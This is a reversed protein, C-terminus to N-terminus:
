IAQYSRAIRIPTKGIKEMLKCTTNFTEDSTRPGKAVEVGPVIHPPIFYHTIIIKNQRKVNSAFDGLTQFSTNSAIITCPPCLDDLKNFLERKDEPRETIAETIFDANAALQSLDTTTTIRKVTEDAKKQTILREDVFIEIASKINKMARNLIKDNIDTITTPYGYLAFNIAIGFGMAGAGVVGVKTINQLM